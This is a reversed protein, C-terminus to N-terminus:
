TGDELFEEKCQPCYVYDLPDKGKFYHIGCSCCEEKEKPNEREM